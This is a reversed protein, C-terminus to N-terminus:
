VGGKQNKRARNKWKRKRNQKNTQETKTGKKRSRPKEAAHNNQFSSAAFKNNKKSNGSNQVFYGAARNAQKFPLRERRFEKSKLKQASLKSEVGSTRKVIYTFEPDGLVRFDPANNGDVVEDAWLSVFWIDTEANAQYVVVNYGAHEREGQWNYRPVKGKFAYFTSNFEPRPNGNGGGFENANAAFSPCRDDGQPSIYNKRKPRKPKWETPGAVADDFDAGDIINDGNSITRFKCAVGANGFPVTSLSDAIVEDTAGTTLSYLASSLYFGGQATQSISFDSIAV